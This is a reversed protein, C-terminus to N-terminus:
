DIGWMAALVSLAIGTATVAVMVCTTKACSSAIEETDRLWKRISFWWSESSLKQEMVEKTEANMMQLHIHAYVQMEPRDQLLRHLFPGYGERIMLQLAGILSNDVRYVVWTLRGEEAFEPSTCIRHLARIRPDPYRLAPCPWVAAAAAQYDLATIEDTKTKSITDPVSAPDITM